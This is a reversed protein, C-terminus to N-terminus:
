YANAELWIKFTNRFRKVASPNCLCDRIQNEKGVKINYLRLLQKVSLKDEKPLYKEIIERDEQTFVIQEGEM